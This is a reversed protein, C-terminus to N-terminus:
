KWAEGRVIRSVTMPSVNFKKCADRQRAGSAVMARIEDVQPRTLRAMPNREGYQPVVRHRGKEMMDRVNDAQTGIFLHTPNVCNRVDCKHLVKMGKPIPGRHVLWSVRHAKVQGLAPLNGYGGGDKCGTFLWCDDTRETMRLLRAKASELQELEAMVEAHFRLADDSM